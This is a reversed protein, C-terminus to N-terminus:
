ILADAVLKFCRFDWDHISRKMEIVSQLWREGKWINELYIPGVIKVNWPMQLWDLVDLIEISSNFDIM